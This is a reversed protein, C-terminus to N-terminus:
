RNLFAALKQAMFIETQAMSEETCGGIHPTLLLNDHHRAYKVLPHADMGGAVEGSVVDLAAGALRGSELQALLAQEDLLEGRATNVLVAGPKMADFARADFFGATTDDLNVHLTVIDARHLLDVLPGGTVGDELDGAPVHPDATLVTAGLAMFYRAVIRGLRGYGVIGVTKRHVERGRFQDRNWGGTAAHSAAEPIHRLMALTLALTHEATARVDRLFEVEGQLSLVAIGRREAEALDIHTLGTTPSVIIRLEPAADLVQADIHHRLRVWLVECGRVRTLLEARDLDTVDV